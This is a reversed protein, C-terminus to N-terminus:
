TCATIAHFDSVQGKDAREALAVGLDLEQQRHESSRILMLQADERALKAVQVHVAAPPEAVVRAYDFRGCAHAELHKASSESALM